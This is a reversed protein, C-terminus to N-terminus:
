IFKTGEDVLCQAELMQLDVQDSDENVIDSDNDSSDMDDIDTQLPISQGLAPSVTSMKMSSSVSLNVPSSPSCTHDQRDFDLLLLPVVAQFTPSSSASQLQALTLAGPKMHKSNPHSSPATLHLIAAASPIVVTEIDIVLRSRSPVKVRVNGLSTPQLPAIKGYAAIKGGEQVLVMVRTGSPTECNVQDLPSSETAKEFVMRSGIVDRVAYHLLDSRLTKAEWEECRRVTDDKPLYLHLTKALLADLAGSEKRTIIGRQICYDKLNITTFSVQNALQSFQKKIRTLDAKVASGIKFVRDSLLLRLLSPPLM